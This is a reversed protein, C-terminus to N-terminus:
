SWYEYTERPPTLYPTPFDQAWLKMGKDGKSVMVWKLWNINDTLPNDERYVFGRSEKRFLVSRLIIEAIGVMSRVENAKVLEHPDRAYVQPLTETRLAEVQIIAEKLNEDNRLYAVKYPILIEHLRHTVEDAMIGASRKVPALIEEAGQEIQTTVNSDERRPPYTEHIYNTAFRGAREGSIFCFTLNLGTISWTGHEPTCTTDGAVYLGPLNTASETNVHVGGGHALTGMFAPMWEIKQSFPNLGKRDFARFGEPLLRRLTHQDEENVKTLDMYIPGRGADVEKVMGVVLKTLRARSGVKPDYKWMFEDGQSNLFRGGFGVMFGPGHIDLDRATSNSYPQDLNRLWAGAEYAAYQGEGTLNRHGIFFSKFGCGGAALVVAQCRFLYTEATRCHLGLAGVIKSGKVLLHTIMVRQVIQVGAERTRRKLTDMMALANIQCTLTKINGRAKRRIYTGKGDEIIVMMGYKKGWTQLERVREYGEDLQIKVWEQDNLYEGRVIIEEFWAAHDDDPLCVNIAGAAFPSIGSRGVYGKDVLIVKKGLERAKIAAFCGASGGGTVLIECDVIHNVLRTLDSM